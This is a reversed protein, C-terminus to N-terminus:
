SSTTTPASASPSQKAKRKRSYFPLPHVVLPATKGRIDMTLETGTLACDTEVYATGINTQITPSVSGSRIEGVQVGDKLVPYGMRPARKGSTTVGVLTRTMSEGLAKLAERGIWDGKEEAFSVAFQLGAELAHHEPSLEHGYLAMGAELRLTDRAGLGIPRLGRSAGRELLADWVGEIDMTRLYIEFGDEGTYGTRSLLTNPIGCVTSRDFRYYGITSLDSGCLEKLIGIAEPGQIAIMSTCETRDEITIDYGEAHERLFALDADINSANIVLRLYEPDVYILLDDIPYGDEKCFLSYRIAGNPIRAVHNTTVADLFRVRDPGFIRVRGMHGLDFIGAHERVCRVEELIPGYQVPMHWGGFDVLRAGLREHTDHLPTHRM